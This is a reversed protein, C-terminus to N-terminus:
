NKIWFHKSRQNVKVEVCCLIYNRDIFKEFLNIGIDKQKNIMIYLAFM